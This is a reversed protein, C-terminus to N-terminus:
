QCSDTPLELDAQFRSRIFRARLRCLGAAMGASDSVLYLKSGLVERWTVPVEVVRYQFRQALLLVEIDQLFGAENSLRFLHRATSRRFMKFGCQTDLVPLGFMVRVIAAFAHGALGRVLERRRGKESPALRSGVAIDAGSSIAERLSLEESIPTAGDADSVLVLTGNAALVGTRVAAGKGQNDNHRILRTEPGRIV